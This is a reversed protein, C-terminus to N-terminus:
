DNLRLGSCRDRLNQLDNKWAAFEDAPLGLDAVGDGLLRDLAAVLQQQLAGNLVAGGALIRVDEGGTELEHPSLEVLRAAVLALSADEFAVNTQTEAVRPNAM